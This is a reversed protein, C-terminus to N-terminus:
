LIIVKTIIMKDGGIIMFLKKGPKSPPAAVNYATDKPFPQTEFIGGRVTTPTEGLSTTAEGGLWGPPHAAALPTGCDLCFSMDDANERGCAQCNKM